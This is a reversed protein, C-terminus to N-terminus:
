INMEALWSIILDRLQERHWSFAHNAGEVEVYRRPQGSREFLAKGQARAHTIEAFCWASAMSARSCLVIVAQCGRLRAYLEQEWHRGAPIGLAPDFDLFVSRHGMELLRTAVEGAVVNDASSHSLFIASM